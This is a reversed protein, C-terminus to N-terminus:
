RGSHGPVDTRRNYRLFHDRAVYPLNASHGKSAEDMAPGVLKGVQGYKPGTDPYPVHKQDGSHRNPPRLSSPIGCIVLSLRGSRDITM